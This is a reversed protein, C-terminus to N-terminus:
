QVRVEAYGSISINGNADAGPWARSAFFPVYDRTIRVSVYRAVTDGATACSGTFALHTTSTGCELWSDPAITNGTSYGAATMAATAETTLSSNYGATVVSRQQEIQEISRQASQELLLKMSYARSLDTIGIVLAAMFPATLALEIISAGREDRGLKSPMSHTV